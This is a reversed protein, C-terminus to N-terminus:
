RRVSVSGVEKLRQHTPPTPQQDLLRPTNSQRADDIRRNPRQAALKNADALTATLEVTPQGSLHRMGRGALATLTPDALFGLETGL